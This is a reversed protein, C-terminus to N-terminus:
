PQAVLRLVKGTAGYPGLTENTLVYIEGARDEALGIIRSDIQLASRYPWLQGRDASPDAIFIQGSPQKFAASWDTVVLKGALAAIASGRYMRAGTIATGVGAVGLKTEPHSAQMNPYELVPHVIRSGL